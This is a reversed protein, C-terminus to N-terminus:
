AEAVSKAVRDAFRSFTREARTWAGRPSFEDLFEEYDEYAFTALIEGGPGVLDAEVSAGGRGVSYTASIGQLQGIRTFGPNSPTVRMIRVNLVGGDGGSGAYAGQKTLAEVLEEQLDEALYEADTPHVPQVAGSSRSRNPRTSVIEENVTVSVDTIAPLSDAVIDAQFPRAAAAPLTLTAIAVCVSFLGKIM